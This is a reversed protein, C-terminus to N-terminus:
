RLLIVVGSEKLVSGDSRTVQIFFVYAGQDLDKGSKTGNWGEDMQNTEFVKRGFRDYILMQYDATDGFVILPKFEKNIGKPAFANPTFIKVAEQICVQNSRSRIIEMQGDPKVLSAKAEVVYCTTTQGNEQQDLQDLFNTTPDPLNAIPTEIGDVVRFLEYTISFTNEIDLRTWALENLGTGQSQGALFITSGLTSFATTDCDDITQILYFFKGDSPNVTNDTFSNEASLPFEPILNVISEFNVNDVSRLITIANIEANPEWGWNITVENAPTVSVNQIFFNRVPQVIDASVCTENSNSFITTEAQVAKIFFCYQDGDDANEFVFSTATNSITEVITPPAGNLSMWVEQRGIGNPWNQYLNWDLTITQECPSVASQLFITNHPLDFISTNGCDDLANVFYSESKDNPKANVDLYTLGSFITDIPIVGINTERYIIFGSVEPSPSATWDLLVQGNEVSVRQIPSIEPPRNDLTDSQFPMQGPCNFNSQLYYFRLDGGPNPNFYSTQAPDSISVLLSFPGNANPSFFIDYSVFPGCSNNPVKWILTDSKVCLFDPAAIQANVQPLLGLFLLFGTFNFRKM